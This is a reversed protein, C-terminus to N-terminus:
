TVACASGSAESQKADSLDPKDMWANFPTPAKKISESSNVSDQEAARNGERHITPHISINEPFAACSSDPPSEPAAHKNPPHKESVAEKCNCTGASNNVPYLNWKKAQVSMPDRTNRRTRSILPSALLADPFTAGTRREKTGNGADVTAIAAAQAGQSAQPAPILHEDQLQSYITASQV